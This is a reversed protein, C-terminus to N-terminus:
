AERSIFEEYRQLDERIRKISSETTILLAKYFRAEGLKLEMLYSEAGDIQTGIKNILEKKEENTM